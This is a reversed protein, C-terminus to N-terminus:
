WTPFPPLGSNPLGRIFSDAKWFGQFLYVEYLIDVNVLDGTSMYRSVILHPLPFAHFLYVEYLLIQKEFPRFYTFGTYFTWM